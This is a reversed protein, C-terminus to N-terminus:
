AVLEMMLWTRTRCRIRRLCLKKTARSKFKQSKPLLNSCIERSRNGRSCSKQMPAEEYCIRRKNWQRSSRRRKIESTKKTPLWETKNRRRQTRPKPSWDDSSKGFLVSWKRQSATWTESSPKWTKKLKCGIQKKLKSTRPSSSSKLKPERSKLLFRQRRMERSRKWTSSKTDAMNLISAFRAHLTKVLTATINWCKRTTNRRAYRRDSWCTKMIRSRFIRWRLWATNRTRGYSTTGTWVIAVGSNVATLVIRVRNAKRTATEVRWELRAASKSPWSICFATSTSVSPFIRLRERNRCMLKGRVCRASSKATWPGPKQWDTWVRSVSATCALCSSQNRTSRTASKALSIRMWTTWSPKSTWRKHSSQLTYGLLSVFASPM